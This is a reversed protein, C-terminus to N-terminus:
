IGIYSVTSTVSVNASANARLTDGNSFALKEWDVVYTDNSALQVSSYIQTNATPTSGAPVAYLNFTVTSTSYNCFYMASIITNGSSVYINSPVTTLSTNIISM